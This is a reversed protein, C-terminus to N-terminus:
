NFIPIYLEWPKPVFGPEPSDLCNEFICVWGIGVESETGALIVSRKHYLHNCTEATSLVPFADPTNENVVLPLTNLM